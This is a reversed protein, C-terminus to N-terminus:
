PSYFSWGQVYVGSAGWIAGPGVQVRAWLRPNTACSTSDAATSICARLDSVRTSGIRVFYSGNITSGFYLCPGAPCTGVIPSSFIPGGPGFKAAKFMQPGSVPIEVDYVAGDNAGFYWDGSSDAMPTTTISPRGDAQGDYSIALTLGSNFLYLFGKTGGVGIVDQGGPCHCWYPARSPADGNPLIASAGSSMSYSPGGNVSIRALVLRGGATAVALTLPAGNRPGTASAAYGVAGGGVLSMSDVRSLVYTTTGRGQGNEGDCQDGECPGITETYRWHQLETSTGNNVKVLVFIEESSSSNNNNTTGPFVLPAGVVQGGVNNTTLLRCGSSRAADYGYLNGSSNAFFVYDPFNRRGSVSVEAGPTATVTASSPMSCRFGGGDDILAVCHGACDSGGIAAPILVVSSGDSNTKPLLTATPQGGIGVSWSPITSGFSYARLVGSSDSVLYRNQGATTAHVGDISFAGQALGTAQEPLIADCTQTVAAPSGNLTLFWPGRNQSTGGSYDKACVAPVPGSQLQHIALEAASTVTAETKVRTVLARSLMFSGTLETLMGGILISMFAVIILVGSLVSGRQQRRRDHLLLQLQKM